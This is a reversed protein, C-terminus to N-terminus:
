GVKLYTKPIKKFFFSFIFGLSPLRKWKLYLSIWFFRSNALHLLLEEMFNGPIGVISGGGIRLQRASTLWTGYRLLADLKPTWEVNDNSVL